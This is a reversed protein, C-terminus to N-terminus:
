KRNMSEIRTIMDKSAEFGGAYSKKFFKLSKDLDKEGYSGNYHILGLTYQAVPCGMSAGKTFWHYAREEDVRVGLGLRYLSGIKSAAPYFGATVAKTYHEFAKKYDQPVEDKGLQYIEGMLFHAQGNNVNDVTTKFYELALMCDRKVGKGENYLLGIRFIADVEGGLEQSKRYWKMAEKYDQKVGTGEEYYVGVAMCASSNGNKAAKKAWYVTKESNRCVNNSGALYITMLIFQCAAVCTSKKNCLMSWLIKHTIKDDVFSMMNSVKLCQIPSAIGEQSVRKLILNSEESVSDMNFKLERNGFLYLDGDCIPETDSVDKETVKELWYLAKKHDEKVGVGMTYMSGLSAMADSWGNNAALTLWYVASKHNVSVGTDGELFMCGVLYQAVPNNWTSAVRRLLSISKPPNRREM